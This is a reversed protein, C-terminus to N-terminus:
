GPAPAGHRGAGAAFRRAGAAGEGLAASGTALENALAAAEDLGWQDFASARDARLCTPPLAALEAALAEAARPGHRPRRAPRGVGM